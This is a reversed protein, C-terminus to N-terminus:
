VTEEEHVEAQAPDSGDGEGDGSDNYQGTMVAEEAVQTLDYNFLPLTAGYPNNLDYSQKEIAHRRVDNRIRDLNQEFVGSMVEPQAVRPDVYVTMPLTMQQGIYRLAHKARVKNGQADIYTAASLVRRMEQMCQQKETIPPREYLHNAIAYDAAADVDIPAGGHEASWQDMIEYLTM